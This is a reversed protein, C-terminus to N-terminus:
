RRRKSAVEQWYKQAFTQTGTGQATAKHKRPEDQYNTLDNKVFSEKFKAIAEKTSQKIIDDAFLQKAKDQIFRPMDVEGTEKNVYKQDRPSAVYESLEEQLIQKQKDTLKYNFESFVKEGNTSDVEVKAKFGTFKLINDTIQPIWVEEKFKNAKETEQEIFSNIVLEPDSFKTRDVDFAIEPLEISEQLQSFYNKAKIAEDKLAREGRRIRKAIEENERQLREREEDFADEPITKLKLGIGYQEYLEDEIDEQTFYPKERKMKLKILEVESINNIDLSSVELYERVKDRNQQLYESASYTLRETQPIIEEELQQTQQNSDELEEEEYLPAFYEEEEEVLTTDTTEVDEVSDEIEENQITEPEVEPRVQEQIQENQVSEEFQQLFANTGTLKKSM